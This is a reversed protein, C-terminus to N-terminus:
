CRKIRQRRTTPLSSTKKPLPISLTPPPSGNKFPCRPIFCQNHPIERPYCVSCNRGGGTLILRRNFNLKFFRKIIM